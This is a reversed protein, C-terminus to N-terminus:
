LKKRKINSNDGVNRLAIDWGNRRKIWDFNEKEERKISSSLRNVQMLHRIFGDTFIRIIADM